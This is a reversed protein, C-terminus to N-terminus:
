EDCVADDVRPLFFTVPEGKVEAIDFGRCVQGANVGLSLTRIMISRDDQGIVDLGDGSRGDMCPEFCTMGGSGDCILFTSLEEGPFEALMADGPFDGLVLHGRGTPMVTVSGVITGAPVNAGEDAEVPRLHLRMAAVVQAPHSALHGANYTRAFCGPQPGALAPLAALTLALSTCTTSRM